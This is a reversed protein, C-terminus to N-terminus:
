HLTSDIKLGVLQDRERLLLQHIARDRLAVVGTLTTQHIISELEDEVVLSDASLSVIGVHLLILCALLGALRHGGDRSESIDLIVRSLRSILSGEHGSDHLLGYGNGNLGVLSYELQICTTDDGGGCASSVEVMTDENNAESSIVLGVSVVPQHLVRPSVLPSLGAIDTKGTVHVDASEVHHARIGDCLNDRCYLPLYHSYPLKSYYHTHLLSSNLTLNVAVSKRHRKM